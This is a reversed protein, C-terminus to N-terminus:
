RHAEPQVQGACINHISLNHFFTSFSSRCWGLPSDMIPRACVKSHEYIFIGVFSLLDRWNCVLVCVCVCLCEFVGM